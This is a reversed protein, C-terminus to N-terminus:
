AAKVGAASKILAVQGEAFQEVVSITERCALKLDDPTPTEDYYTGHSLSNILISKISIGKEGSLYVVFEGLTKSKDPRCFRGVAELVCRIANGTSHDPSNGNAVHYVHALQQEFPAVYSSLHTLKHTAGDASLSFTADNNVVSNTRAINFFYSSHTLILIEPRLCKNGDIKGPAISIEGRDSIGLHKLTQAITFVFDYSMSTVPDDFVLFLKRYDSSSEMKRHICAIFYCFAIATKEGESLTRHPGRTMEYHGRKLIFNDKDFIYKEGFFEKLLIQFTEAVRVRANTSPRSKELEELAIKKRQADGKLERFAEFDSWREIVFERDFVDCAKRQLSKREEDSQEVAKNLASARANNELIVKNVEAIHASLNGSPCARPVSLAAAKAQIASKISTISEQAAEFTSGGDHLEINKQSPVFRKLTDFQSKQRAIRARADKLELEKLNLKSSFQRLETKHKEEEDEFYAIYADIVSRPNTSSIDQECFPCTSRHSESVIKAGTEYFSHHAEIKKKIGESVSSPTTVRQLLAELVGLEIDNSNILDLVAPYTPEAPIAKLSDLDKLIETFGHEPPAPKEFFRELVGDLSLNKYDKLQKNIGAKEHLDAVKKKEYESRLTSLSAQEKAIAKELVEQADKLNIDESDVSIQNEIEGNIEYKRERLEEHVFEESFVHFITDAVNATVKNGNKELQLAGMVKTGRSFSFVGNGDISEDSILNSPADDINRDVGKLDLYRFARSLFSKGTGNRAFILNQAHKTLEGDLSLIPGLHRATIFINPKPATSMGADGGPV